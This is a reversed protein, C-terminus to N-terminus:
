NRIFYCIELPGKGRFAYIKNTTFKLEWLIQKAYLSYKNFKICPLPHSPNFM